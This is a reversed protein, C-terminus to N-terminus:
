RRRDAPRGGGGARCRRLWCTEANRRHTRHGARSWRRAAEGPSALRDNKPTTNSSARIAFTLITLPSTSGPGYSSFRLSTTTMSSKMKPSGLSSFYPQLRCLSAEQRQTTRPASSTVPEFRLFSPSRLRVFATVHVAQVGASPRRRTSDFFRSRSCQECEVSHERDRDRSSWGALPARGVAGHSTM